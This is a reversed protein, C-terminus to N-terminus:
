RKKGKPKSLKANNLAMYMEVFKKHQRESLADLEKKAQQTAYKMADLIMIWGHMYEVTRNAFVWPKPEGDKETFSVTKAVFDLEVVVSIGAKTYVRRVFLDNSTGGAM